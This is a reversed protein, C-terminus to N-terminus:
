GAKNIINGMENATFARMTKTRVNGMSGLKLLFAAASEDDPFESIAVLDHGGVTWYVEFAGGLQKAVDQAAEAREVSDKFNRIGQETWDILSVYRAM